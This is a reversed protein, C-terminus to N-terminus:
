IDVIEYQYTVTGDILAFLRKRFNINGGEQIEQYYTSVYTSQERFISFGFALVKECLYREEFSIAAENSLQGISVKISFKEGDGQYFSRRNFIDFNTQQIQAFITARELTSYGAGFTFTGTRGEKVTVRMDRRGPINTDQPNIDVDDFFWTNELRNKSIKMRVTDFVDGPGLILERIIVVSKTKTNGEIQVSEVNFKESEEVK